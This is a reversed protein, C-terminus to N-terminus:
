HKEKNKLFYNDVTEFCLDNVVTNYKGLAFGLPAPNDSRIGTIRAYESRCVTKAAAAAVLSSAVFTKINKKNNGIEIM